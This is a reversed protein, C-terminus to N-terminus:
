LELFENYYLAAQEFHSIAVHSLCRLYVFQWHSPDIELGKMCYQCSEGYEGLKYCSLAVGFLSELSGGLESYTKLFYRKALRYCGLRELACALNFKAQTFAPDMTLAQKYADSALRWRMNKAFSLGRSFWQAKLVHQIRQTAAVEKLDVQEVHLKLKEYNTEPEDDQISPETLETVVAEKLLPDKMAVARSQGTLVALVIVAKASDLICPKVQVHITPRAPTYAVSATRRASPHRSMSQSSTRTPLMYRPVEKAPTNEEVRKLKHRDRLKSTKLQGEGEKMRPQLKSFKVSSTTSQESESNKRPPAASHSFLRSRRPNDGEVVSPLRAENGRARQAVVPAGQNFSRSDEMTAVIKRLYDTDFEQATTNETWCVQTRLDVKKKPSMSILLSKLDRADSM